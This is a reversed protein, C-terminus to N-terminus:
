LVAGQRFLNFGNGVSGFNPSIIIFLVLLGLLIWGISPVAGLQKQLKNRTSLNM